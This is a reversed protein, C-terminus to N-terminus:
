ERGLTRFTEHVAPGTEVAVFEGDDNPRVRYPTKLGEPLDDEWVLITGLRKGERDYIEMEGSYTEGDAMSRLDYAPGLFAADTPDADDYYSYRAHLTDSM